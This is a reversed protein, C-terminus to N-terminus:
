DYDKWKNSIHVLFKTTIIYLLLTILLMAFDYSSTEGGMVYVLAYAPTLALALVGFIFYAAFLIFIGALVVGTISWAISRIILRRLNM